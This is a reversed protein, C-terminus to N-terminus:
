WLIRRVFDPNQKDRLEKAPSIRSYVVDLPCANISFHRLIVQELHAKTEEAFLQKSGCSLIQPYDNASLGHGEYDFESVNQAFFWAWQNDNADYKFVDCKKLQPLYKECWLCM